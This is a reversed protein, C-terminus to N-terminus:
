FTTSTGRVAVSALPASRGGIRQRRSARQELFGGVVLTAIGCWELWAASLLHGTVLLGCGALAVLLPWARQARWTRYASVAISAVVAVGLLVLHQRDSLAAGVGLTAFM